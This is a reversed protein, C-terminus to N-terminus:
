TVVIVYMYVYAYVVSTCRSLYPTLTPNSSKESMFHDFNHLALISGEAAGITIICVYLYYIYMVVTYHLITAPSFKPSNPSNFTM